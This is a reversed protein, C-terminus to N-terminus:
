SIRYDMIAKKVKAKQKALKEYKTQLKDLDGGYRNADADSWADGKQGAEANMDSNLQALEKAADKMQDILDSEMDMLKYYKNMSIKKPKPKLKDKKLQTKFARMAVLVPDNIAIENLNNENLARSIEKMFPEINHSGYADKIVDAIDQALNKYSYNDPIVKLIDNYVDENIDTLKGEFVSKVPKGALADKCAKNFAKLAKTALGKKGDQKNEISMNLYSLVDEAVEDDIDDFRKSLDLLADESMTNWSVKSGLMLLPKLGRALAETLKLEADQYLGGLAQDLRIELQKKKKTLKIAIERHKALKKEDGSDKAKKYMPFNKKLLQITAVLEKQAKQVKAPTMKAENMDPADMM